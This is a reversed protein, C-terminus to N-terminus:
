RVMWVNWVHQIMVIAGALYLGVVLWAAGDSRGADTARRRLLGASWGGVLAAVAGMLVMGFWSQSIGPGESWAWRGPEPLYVPGPVLELFVLLYGALYALAAVLLPSPVPRGSDSQTVM